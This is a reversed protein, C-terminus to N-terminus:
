VRGLRGLVERAVREGSEVAGDMYGAWREATETGAWHIRGCPARLAAGYRTLVGPGMIGTYCGRSYEEETWAKDVYGIPSRAREGFVEAFVELAMARREESSKPGWTRAEDGAVFGLLAGSNGDGPSDDFVIRIPGRDRVVEGSWGEERWFPREYFAICKIVSGMPMRQVLQDRASPLAPAYRIRGALAPPIAIVAAAGAVETDATHVRVEEDDQVVAEVPSSLTVRDGLEEALRLSITQFGEKLRTEQAGGAISTLKLLGGGSHLYFLFFLFSLESPEAAFVAKTAVDIMSRAPGTFVHKRKWSEVTMGDWLGAKKATWPAEVPVKRASWELSAMARGLDGTAWFPLSPIDSRYPRVRENLVLAKKGRHHQEVRTLGMEDVLAAMRDQTPGIWQAGLDVVEGHDARHSLTRGGVRDRAELVRVSVGARVLARAATLGALGAGVLVVDVRETM